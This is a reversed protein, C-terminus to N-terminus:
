ADNIKNMLKAYHAELKSVGRYFAKLSSWVLLILKYCLKILEWILMFPYFILYPLIMDTTFKRGPTRNLFVLLPTAVFFGFAYYALVTLLVFLM